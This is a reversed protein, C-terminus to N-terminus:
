VVVMEVVEVVRSARKQRADPLNQRRRTAGLSETPISETQRSPRAYNKWRRAALVDADRACRRPVSRCIAVATGDGPKEQCISAFCM